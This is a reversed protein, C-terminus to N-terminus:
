WCRGGPTWMAWTRTAETAGSCQNSSQFSQGYNRAQDILAPYSGASVDSSLNYDLFKYDTGNSLYLYCNINSAAVMGPDSPFSPMYTPTLGPIVNTATYSGWGACQSRWAWGPNPYSGNADYYVELATAIQKMDALRRSDRAKARATNLSALIVSSLLGIIAIVVLLEILTFGRSARFVM